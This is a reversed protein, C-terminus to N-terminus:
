LHGARDGALRSAAPANESGVVEDRDLSAAEAQVGEHLPLEPTTYAHESEGQEATPPQTGMVELAPGQEEINGQLQGEPGAKTHGAAEHEQEEPKKAELGPAAGAPPHKHTAYHAAAGAFHRCTWSSLESHLAM